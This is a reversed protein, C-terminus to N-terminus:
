KLSNVTRELKDISEKFGIISVKMGAVDQPLPRLTTIVEELRAIRENDKSNGPSMEKVAIYAIAALILIVQILGRALWNKGNLKPIETM